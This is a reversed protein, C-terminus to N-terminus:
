GWRPLIDKNNCLASIFGLGLTLILSIKRAWTPNLLRKGWLPIITKISGSVKLPKASMLLKSKIYILM